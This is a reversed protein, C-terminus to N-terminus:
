NGDDIIKGPNFLNQPDLTQKITRMLGLAVPGVADELYPRKLLGVGHEGSVMGGLAIATRVVDREANIAAQTSNPDDPNYMISPHLNGDGAHGFVAIELGTTQAIAEVRRVMAPIHSRPVVIDERRSPGRELQAFYVSRRAQWLRAREAEETAIEIGFGGHEICVAQVLALEESVASLLRGDQEIVLMAGAHQPLGLHLHDEVHRLTTRDMLEITCPLTGSHLVATVATSAQDLTPFLASLTVRVPPKPILRLTVETIIGLTGESGVFLHLLGYGSAQKHTKAGLKVIQGDALVVTMGLVYQRTVGYKLARPGGANCAVNGGISCWALSAPDPPYFLNQAEVAAQLDGTVVGAQATVTMAPADIEVIQNMQALSVVLGGRDPVSGGTLGSGAGRTTIPVGHQAAICVVAAVEETTEPEVVVDPLAWGEAADHAWMDLDHTHIHVPDVHQALAAIFTPMLVPPISVM